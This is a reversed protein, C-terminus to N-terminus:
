TEAEAKAETRAERKVEGKVLLISKEVMAQEAPTLMSARFRQRRELERMRWELEGVLATVEVYVRPDKQAALETVVAAVSDHDLGSSVFSLQVRQTRQLGGALVQRLEPGAQSIAQEIWARGAAFRKLSARLREIRPLVDELPAAAGHVITVDPQEGSVAALLQLLPPRFEGPVLNAAMRARALPAADHEILAMLWEAAAVIEGQRSFADGSVGHPYGFGDLREHHLLVAEAVAKGAGAMERLVRHAILPHAAIHRFREGGDGSGPRLHDPDIYLEGIDHLLGASALDRHIDIQGPMLARGLSLALMAVGVAHDLRDHRSQSYVTLLSQLPPALDLAALSQPAARSRDPVCLARLLQHKDLLAEGVTALRGAIDSGEVQMCNELPKSLKHVLLRDRTREDVKAGKALLKIGSATVIDETVLVDSNRSTAIVHDLYHPNVGGADATDPQTPLEM